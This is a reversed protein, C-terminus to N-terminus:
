PTVEKDGERKLVVGIEHYLQAAEPHELGVQSSSCQHITLGM